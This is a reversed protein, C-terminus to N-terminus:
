RRSDDKGFISLREKSQSQSLVVCAFLLSCRHHRRRTKPQSVFTSRCDATSRANMGLDYAHTIDPTDSVLFSLCAVSMEFLRWLSTVLPVHDRILGNPFAIHETLLLEVLGLGLIFHQARARPHSPLSNDSQHVSSVFLSTMQLPSSYPTGCLVSASVSLLV